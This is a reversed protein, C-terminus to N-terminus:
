NNILAMAITILQMNIIDNDGDPLLPKWEISSREVHHACYYNCM